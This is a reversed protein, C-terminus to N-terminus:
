YLWPAHLDLSAYRHLDALGPLVVQARQAVPAGDIDVALADGVHGLMRGEAVRHLGRRRQVIVLRPRLVELAQGEGGFAGAAVAVSPDVAAPMQRAIMGLQDLPAACHAVPGFQGAAKEAAGGVMDGGAQDALHDADLHEAAM